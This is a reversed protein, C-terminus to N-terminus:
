YIKNEATHKLYWSSVYQISNEESEPYATTDQGQTATLRETRVTGLFMGGVCLKGGREV